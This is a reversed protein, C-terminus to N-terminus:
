ISHLGIRFGGGGGKRNGYVYLYGTGGMTMVATMKGDKVALKCETINFMSSSSDVKVDYVGDEIRDATVPSMDDTVVDKAQSMESSDAVKDSSEEKQEETQASEDTKGDAKGSCGPVLLAASLILTLLMAYNRNKLINKM